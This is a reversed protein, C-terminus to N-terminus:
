KILKQRPERSKVFNGRRRYYDDLVRRVSKNSPDEHLARHLWYLGEETQGTALLAEGLEQHLVPDHPREIMKETAIEQWRRLSAELQKLQRLEDDAAASKGQRYLCQILQYRLPGNNTEQRLAERLWNEAQDLQGRHLALQGREGLAPPFHPYRALVEELLPEAEDQQDLHNLCRALLVALMPHDPQRQRLQQLYSLAQPYKQEEMLLEALRRRAVEHAPDLQLIREYTDAAERRNRLSTHLIGQFLLAQTNDPQRELWIQLVAHVDSFRYVRFYGQIMAECILPTAPSGEQVLRRLHNVVKDTEGKAAIHLLQELLWEETEGHLRRYQELYEQAAEYLADSQRAARALLLLTEANGPWLRLSAELRPRAEKPHYRELLARGIKLHHLALLHRGAAIGSLVLLLLILGPALLLRPRRLLASMPPWYRWLGRRRGPEGAAAQGCPADACCSPEVAVVSPVEGAM